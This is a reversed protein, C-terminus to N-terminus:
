QQSGSPGGVRAAEGAGVVAVVDVPTSAHGTTRKDRASMRPLGNGAPPIGAAGYHMHPANHWSRLVGTPHRSRAREQAAAAANTQSSSSNTLESVGAVVGGAVILTAASALAWCRVRRPRRPRPPEPEEVIHCVVDDFRERAM